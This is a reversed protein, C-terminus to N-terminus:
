TQVKLAVVSEVFVVGVPGVAKYAVHDVLGDVVISMTLALPFDNRGRATRLRFRTSRTNGLRASGALIALM